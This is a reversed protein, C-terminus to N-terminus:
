IGYFSFESIGKKWISRALVFSIVLWIGSGILLSLPAKGLLIATPAYFFYPFPTALLVVYLPKPLIDLPFLSGAVFSIVVTFIFRPAWVETSWFAIFSLALSVFFSICWGMCISLFFFLYLFINNPIYFPPHFLLLLLGIELVALPIHVLKDAAERTLLYRFFSIPKILYNVVTGNLVDGAVDTTRMTTTIASVVTVGLIYSMMYVKSYGFIMNTHAFVGNWLMYIILLQILLRLRWLFISLPYSFIEGLTTQFVVLYKAM